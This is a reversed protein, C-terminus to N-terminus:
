EKPLMETHYRVSVLLVLSPTLAFSRGCAVQLRQPQLHELRQCPMTLRDQSSPRVVHRPPIVDYQDADLPEFVVHELNQSLWGAEQLRAVIAM